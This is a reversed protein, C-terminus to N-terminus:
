PALRILDDALLGMIYDDKWADGIRASEREVGEQVFGVKEYARIARDNFALVRCSLRHLGMTDFAHAALLQMAESGLGKGLCTEDLIGIAINARQDVPNVSHLRIAGILRSQFLIIWAHPENVQSDAWSQAAEQTIERVQTPDAGFMAQIRPNNGLVFRGVADTPVPMRLTVRPGILTPRADTM